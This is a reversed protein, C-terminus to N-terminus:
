LLFFQNPDLGREPKLTKHERARLLQSIESNPDNLDGFTLARTPCIDVCGPLLGKRVRHLCYTCKDIYGNPHVYRAGYPCAVICVKCGSCKNQSVIVAGGDSIHSAGTPCASVCPPKSCHHCRESRIEQQLDPYTGRTETVIWDRFGHHPVRNEAKCSLVCAGCGVCRRTDVAMGYRQGSM